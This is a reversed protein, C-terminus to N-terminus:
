AAPPSQTAVARSTRLWQPLVADTQMYRVIPLAAKCASCRPSDQPHIRALLRGWRISAASKRRPACLPLKAETVRECRAKRRASHSAFTRHYRTHHQGKHPMYNILRNLMYLRNLRLLEGNQCGHGATRPLRSGSTESVRSPCLRAFAARSGMMLGAIVVAADTVTRGFICILRGCYRCHPSSKPTGMM